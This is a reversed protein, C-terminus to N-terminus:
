SRTVTESLQSATEATVPPAATQASRRALYIFFGAVSMLVTGIVGLLALIGMNMGQALASDSKGFCAACALAAQPHWALVAATLLFLIRRTAIV